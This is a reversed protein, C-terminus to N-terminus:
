TTRRTVTAGHNRPTLIEVRGELDRDAAVALLAAEVSTITNLSDAFAVVTSGSGSLCAGIAGAGRAADILLSLEPFVTARYQEHLRDVTLASLLDYRGTALGAVGIGVRGINAVADSLPVSPPLVTRMDATSLRREPVFAVARLERPVDFRMAEWGGDTPGVVTFGGLLAAAANDPHGELEAALQLIRNTDLPDGVLSNGALLGGVTAAASSGLGRGLPIQNRM